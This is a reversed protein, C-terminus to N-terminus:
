LIETGDKEKALNALHIHEFLEKIKEELVKRCYQIDSFDGLEKIGQDISMTDGENYTKTFRIYSSGDFYDVMQWQLDYQECLVKLIAQAENNLKEM